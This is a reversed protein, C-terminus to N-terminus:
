PASPRARRRLLARMQSLEESRALAAVAVYVLVGALSGAALAALASLKVHLTAGGIGPVAAELAARVGWAAAGALVAGFSTRALSALLRGEEFGGLRRSLVRLMVAMHLVAAVTTALALGRYGLGLPAMFLWNMPIFLVTVATGIIVPTRSDQLAYFGRALVAQASWAFIGISYYILATATMPTDQPGFRGQQLILRVIPEALAIMLASAPVTLFLLARVGAAATARLQEIQGAAAQASLTPFIAVGMAQAFVGLPVQMLMNARTIASIPGDGLASAFARNLIISVQPLALGLVVPLMLKWVRMADGSRGDFRPRFRGGLRHVAWAQLAFNGAVAGGLAGWCLGAPGLWPALFVGGAIIGVNYIVPGLAPAWFRGHANQVGMMLGGLFFCLQAPLVIRTLAVTAAAKPADFGAAMLAVLQGTFVEGAVVFASVVVFMVSAVTSFLRWAGDRDGLTLKETFVPIFASSLAGGAILFFLLDPVLFAAYYIDSWYGQGFLGSILADRVLGLLRSALIAAMM